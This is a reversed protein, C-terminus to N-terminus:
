AEEISTIKKRKKNRKMLECMNPQSRVFLKHHYSGKDPGTSIRQFEYLNLQRQFSAYSTMSFYKPLIFKAFEKPRFIVFSQGHPLFSALQKGEPFKELDMLLEHLKRPFSALRGVKKSSSPNQQQHTDEQTISSPLNPTPCSSSAQSSDIIPPLKPQNPTATTTGAATSAAVAAAASFLGAPSSAAPAFFSSALSAGLATNGLIGASQNMFISPLGLHSPIGRQQLATLALAQQLLMSSPNAVAAALPNVNAMHGLEQMLSFNAAMGGVGGPAVARLLAARNEDLNGNLDKLLVHSNGNNNM